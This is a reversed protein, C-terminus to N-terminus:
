ETDSEKKVSKVADILWTINKALQEPSPLYNEMEKPVNPTVRYKSVGIPSILNKLAYEVLTRNKDKCIIIGISPNEDKEKVKEDLATLYLQMKGAYEAMFEVTKLEIAILSKLKRHYLLIDIFFEKEGIQIKYQHGVFTYDGGMENLFIRMNKVIASELEKELHEDAIELLEFNYEDKVALKAQNRYKEPVTQDFNTQNMLFREYSKGEIHHILVNKTWGYRKTMLMYFERELPDKCKEIIVMNHSWGIEAVM